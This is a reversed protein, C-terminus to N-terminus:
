EEEASLPYENSLLLSLLLVTDEEEARLSVIGSGM